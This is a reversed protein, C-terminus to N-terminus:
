FLYFYVAVNAVWDMENFGVGQSNVEIFTPAMDLTVGVSEHFMVEMGLFVGYEQGTGSIGDYNFRIQGMEYGTYIRLNSKKIFNLYARGALVDIGESFAYKGEISAYTFFEPTYKLSVYPYGLGVGLEAHSYSATAILITFLFVIIRKRM